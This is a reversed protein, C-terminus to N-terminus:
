EEPEEPMSVQVNVTCTATIGQYTLVVTNTFMGEGADADARFRASDAIGTDDNFIPDIM